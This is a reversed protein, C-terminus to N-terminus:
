QLCHGINMKSLDIDASAVAGKHLRGRWGTAKGFLFLFPDDRWTSFSELLVKPASDHLGQLQRL